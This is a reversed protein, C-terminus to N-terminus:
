LHIGEVKSYTHWPDFEKWDQITNVIRSPVREIQVIDEEGDDEPDNSSVSFRCLGGSIIQLRISAYPAAGIGFPIPDASGMPDIHVVVKTKKPEQLFATRTYVNYYTRAYITRNARNEVEQEESCLVVSQGARSRYTAQAQWLNELFRRKDGETATPDLSAPPNVAVLSRYPRGSWRETQDPPPSELYMNIDAGGPDSVVVDALDVVGKSSMGSKKRGTPIGGAKTLKELGDLGSLARGGKDGNPRKVVLLKDDFLFLTCHLVTGPSSGSPNTSVSATDSMGIVDEVDICDIFKRSNSFLDPPFGDITASLCYFIAARKTQEDTEAQAIKSAIEDAELIKARQPDDPDMHKLMTRFLLTYRPIRQVPEMLLERLGIRNKTDTSQYKIHDIYSGFRSARKSVEREFIQQADERKVYYQKYQEFGRQDKFHKLLVDGLGGVLAVGNPAMMKELDTLFAENVPLLNDINGFLTKAEYAPLIATEKSRAFNRLPDAYDNKLIQLRRVYSRESTVLETIVSTLASTDTLARQRQAASDESTDMGDGDTLFDEEGEGESTDMEHRQDFADWAQAVKLLEDWREQETMRILEIEDRPTYERCMPCPYKEDKDPLIGKLCENCILHECPFTSCQKVEMKEMCIVCEEDEGLTNSSILDSFRRLLKRMRVDSDVETPDPEPDVLDKAEEKLEKKKMKAITNSKKKNDAKLEKITKELKSIAAPTNTSGPRTRRNTAAAEKDEALEEELDKNRKRLEKLETKLGSVAKQMREMSETIEKFANQGSGSSVSESDSISDLEPSEAKVARRSRASRPKVM